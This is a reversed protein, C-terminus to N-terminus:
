GSQPAPHGAMTKAIWDLYASVRTYVAPANPDNCQQLSGSFFSAIGVQVGNVLIPGGEDDYGTSVASFNEHVIFESVGRTVSNAGGGTVNLSNLYVGIYGQEPSNAAYLAICHAATLVYSPAILTGVCASRTSLLSAQFPINISQIVIIHLSHRTFPYQGSQADIGGIIRMNSHDNGISISSVSNSYASGIFIFFFTVWFNLHM